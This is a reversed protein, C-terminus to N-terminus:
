EATRGRHWVRAEADSMGIFDSFKVPTRTQHPVSPDYSGSSKPSLAVTEEHTDVVIVHGSGDGMKHSIGFGTTETWKKAGILECFVIRPLYQDDTWRDKGRKLADRVTISLDSGSWHTYLFVEAQKFYVNGRDGM